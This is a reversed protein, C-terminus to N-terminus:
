HLLQNDQQLNSGTKFIGTLMAGYLLLGTIVLTCLILYFMMRSLLWMNKTAIQVEILPLFGQESEASKLNYLLILLLLPLLFLLVFSFLKNKAIAVISYELKTLRM